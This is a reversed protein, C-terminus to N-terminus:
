RRLWVQTYNVQIRNLLHLSMKKLETSPLGKYHAPLVRLARSWVAMVIGRCLGQFLLEGPASTINRKLTSFLTGPSASRKLLTDPSRQNVPITLEFLCM